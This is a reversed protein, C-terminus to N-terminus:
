SCVDNIRQFLLWPPQPLESDVIQVSVAEVEVMVLWADPARGVRAAGSALRVITRDDDTLKQPTRRSLDRKLIIEPSCFTSATQSVNV